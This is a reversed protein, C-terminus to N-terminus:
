FYYSSHVNEPAAKEMITQYDTYTIVALIQLASEQASTRFSIGTSKKSTIRYQTESTHKKNWLRSWITLFAM